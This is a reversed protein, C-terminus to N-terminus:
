DEGRRMRAVLDRYNTVQSVYSRTMPYAKERIIDDPTWEVPSSDIWKQVNGPGANYAALALSLNEYRDLQRRLYASGLRINRGPDLLDDEAPADEDLLAAMDRATAPMLQMLGLAGRHSRADSEGKSEVAIVAAILAHDLDFREAADEIFERWPDLREVIEEPSSRLVDLLLLCYGPLSLAFLVTLLLPRGGRKM